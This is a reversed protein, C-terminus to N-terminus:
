FDNKPTNQIPLMVFGEFKSIIKVLNVHCTETM